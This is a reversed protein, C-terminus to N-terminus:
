NNHVTVCYYGCRRRDSHLPFVDLRTDVVSCRHRWQPVVSITALISMNGYYCINAPQLIDDSQLLAINVTTSRDVRNANRYCFALWIAPQLRCSVKPAFILMLTVTATCQVETVASFLRGGATAASSGISHVILRFLNHFWHVPLCIMLVACGSIRRQNHPLCYFIWNCVVIVFWNSTRRPRPLIPLTLTRTWCAARLMVNTRYM